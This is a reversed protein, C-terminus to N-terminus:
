RSVRFVHMRPNGPAETDLTSVTGSAFETHPDEEGPVRVTYSGEADVRPELSDSSGKPQIPLVPRPFIPWDSGKCETYFILAM